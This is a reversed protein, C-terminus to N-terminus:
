KQVYSGIELVSSSGSTEMHIDGVMTANVHVNRVDAGNTAISGIYIESRANGSVQQVITGHFTGQASNGIMSNAQVSTSFPLLLITVTFLSLLFSKLM